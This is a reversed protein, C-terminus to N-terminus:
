AGSRVIEISRAKRLMAQAIADLPLEQEVAGMKMAEKPMGYVVCTREDQGITSSGAQRMALLGEAGDKGMGTLIVGVANAGAERAVSLMMVDVSPRMHQVPPGQRLQVFYHAGSRRLVMHWNGPALLVLGDKVQDGDEAEKVRLQTISDLREAFSKTFVPPMHQVVVIGPVDAPLGMLVDTLAETGGTSSGIAILKDSTREINRQGSKIAASANRATLRPRVHAYAAAKVTEALKEAVMSDLGQSVDATPKELVAVAGLELAKLAIESGSPTLSSLVVVPMPKHQMIKELFSLGDMRPMEMDLTMVDPNHQIIMDRAIYPDAATGVVTIGAREFGRKLVSRVVASDDVVLLRVPKNLDM